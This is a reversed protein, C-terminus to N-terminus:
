NKKLIVFVQCKISPHTFIKKIMVAICQRRTQTIYIKHKVICIIFVPRKCKPIVISSALVCLTNQLSLKKEGRRDDAQM